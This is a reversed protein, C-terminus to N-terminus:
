RVCDLLFEHLEKESECMLLKRSGCSVLGTARHVYYDISYGELEIHHYVMDHPSM